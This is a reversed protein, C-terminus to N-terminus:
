LRIPLSVGSVAFVENAALTLVVKVTNSDIQTVAVTGFPGSGCGSSCGNVTLTSMLNAHAAPVIALLGLVALLGIRRKVWTM